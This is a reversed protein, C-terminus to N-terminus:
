IVETKRRRVVLVLVGLIIIVALVGGVVFPLSSAPLLPSQQANLTFGGYTATNDSAITEGSVPPIAVSLTATAPNLGTTDWKIMFTGSQGSALTENMSAVTKDAWKINIVFKEDVTGNNTVHVTVTVTQGVTAQNSSVNVSDIRLNPALQFTITNSTSPGSGSHATDGGYTGTVTATGIATGTFTV